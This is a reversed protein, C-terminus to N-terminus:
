RQRSRKSGHQSSMQGSVHEVTYRFANLKTVWRCLKDVIQKKLNADSSRPNFVYVLNRNDSFSAPPRNSPYHSPRKKYLPGAYNHKRLPEVPFPLPEHEQEPIPLDLKDPHTQSVMASWRGDSVDIFLCIVYDPKPDSLEVSHQIFNKIQSFSRRIGEDM